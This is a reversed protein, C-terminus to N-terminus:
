KKVALKYYGYGAAILLTIIIIPILQVFTVGATGVADGTIAAFDGTSYNGNYGSPSV